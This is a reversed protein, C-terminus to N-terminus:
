NPLPSILNLFKDVSEKSDFTFVYHGIARLEEHRIRQIKTPKCGKSKLEIWAVTSDPLILIRDPFGVMSPNSYKLCLLGREKAAKVLHKEIAKESVESHKLLRNIM